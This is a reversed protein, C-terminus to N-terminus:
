VDDEESKQMKRLILVAARLRTRVTAAPIGLRQAIQTSNEGEVYRLRMCQRLAPPLRGLMEEVYIGSVDDWVSEDEQLPEKLREATRRRRMDIFANRVTRFMYARAEGEKMAELQEARECGRVFATHVLDEADAAAAGLSRAYRLLDARLLAMHAIDM